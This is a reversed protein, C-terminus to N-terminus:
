RLLTTYCVNYSTIRGLSFIFGALSFLFIIIQEVFCGYALTASAVALCIFATFVSPYIFLNAVMGFVAIFIAVRRYGIGSSACYLSMLILIGSFPLCFLPLEASPGFNFGVVMGQVFHNWALATIVEYLM